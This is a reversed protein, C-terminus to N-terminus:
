SHTYYKHAYRFKCHRCQHPQDIALVLHDSDICPQIFGDPRPRPIESDGTFCIASSIPSSTRCTSFKLFASSTTSKGTLDPHKELLAAIKAEPSPISSSSASSRRRRLGEAEGPCRCPRLLDQGHLLGSAAASRPAAPDALIEQFAGESLERLRSVARPNRLLSKPTMVILRSACAAAEGAAAPSPLVACPHTCNCVQINDRACLM